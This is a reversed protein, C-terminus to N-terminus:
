IVTEWGVIAVAAADSEHDTKFRTVGHILKQVKQAVQLKTPGKKSRASKFRAKVKQATIYHFNLGSYIIAFKLAGMLRQFPDNHRANFHTLEAMVVGSLSEARLQLGQIYDMVKGIKQLLTTTKGLSITKSDYYHLQGGSRVEFVCIGLQGTLAPDIGIVYDYM